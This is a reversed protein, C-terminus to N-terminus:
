LHFAIAMREYQRPTLPPFSDVKFSARIRLIKRSSEALM